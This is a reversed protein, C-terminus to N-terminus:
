AAQTPTRSVPQDLAYSSDTRTHPPPTGADGIAETRAKLVDKVVDSKQAADAWSHKLVSVSGDHEVIALDVERMDYIGTGSSAWYM